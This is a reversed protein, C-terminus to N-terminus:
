QNSQNANIVTMVGRYILHPCSFPFDGTERPTFELTQLDGATDLNLTTSKGRSWQFILQNGCGVQGIQRFILKVPIGQQVAFHVPSYGQPTVVLTVEQVGADNISINVADPVTFSVPVEKISSYVQRNVAPGLTELILQAEEYKLINPGSIKALLRLSGSMFGMEVPNCATSSLCMCKCYAKQAATDQPDPQWELLTLTDGGSTPYVLQVMPEGNPGLEDTTIEIKERVFFKPLYAPILVQFPMQIQANLVLDTEPAERPEASKNKLWIFGPILICVIVITIGGWLMYRWRGTSRLNFETNDGKSM